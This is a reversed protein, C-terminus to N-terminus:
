SRKKALEEKERCIVDAHKQRHLLIGFSQVSAVWVFVTPILVNLRWINVTAYLIAVMALVVPSFSNMYSLYWNEYDTNFRVLMLSTAIVISPYRSPDLVLTRTFQYNKIWTVFEPLSLVFMTFTLLLLTHQLYWMTHRRDELPFTVMSATIDAIILLYTILLGVSGSYNWSSYIGLVLVVWWIVSGIMPITHHTFIQHFLYRMVKGLVALVLNTILAYTRVIVLAITYLIIHLGALMLGRSELVAGDSLPIGYRTLTTGVTPQSLILEIITTALALKWPQGYRDQATAIDPCAQGKSVVFLQHCLVMFLNAVVFSPLFLYYHRAFQSLVKRFDIRVSLKYQCTPQLYLHLKAHESGVPYPVQLRLSLNGRGLSPSVEAYTDSGVAWPMQLRMFSPVVKDTSCHIIDLEAVYAQYVNTLSSIEVSQYILRDATSNIIVDSHHYLSRPFDLLLAMATPAEYVLTQAQSAFIHANLFIPTKIAKVHMVIHTYQRLTAEKLHLYVRPSSSPTLIQLPTLDVGKVCSEDLRQHVCGFVWSKWRNNSIIVLEDVNKTVRLAFYKDMKSTYDHLLLHDTDLTDHEFQENLSVEKIGSDEAKDYGTHNLLHFGFTQRVKRGKSILNSSNPLTLDCLSRVLAMVIQKCWVACLHDTSAWAKPVSETNVSIAKGESVLGDLRTLRYDVLLDRTGGGLSIVMVHKLSTNKEARWYDNVLTYFDPLYDTALLPAQHPTAQTIILNVRNKDFNDLTFLSRALIGGMSHGVLVVKEPLYGPTKYMSLIHNICDNVFETQKMLNGGYFGYLEEHFDISYFDFQTTLSRHHGMRLAVSAMSRVQKYSGANGPIFLVPIGRVPPDPERYLM